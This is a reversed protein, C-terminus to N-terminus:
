LAEITVQTQPGRKRDEATEDLIEVTLKKVWADSLQKGKRDRFMGAAACCDLVMKNRNDVDGRDGPGPTFALTVWFRAGIVFEGRASAPLMAMFDAEWAKAEASKRHAVRGAIAVHEVYHNVSPPLLPLMFTLSRNQTHADM